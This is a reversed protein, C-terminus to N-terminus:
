YEIVEVRQGLQLLRVGIGSGYPVLVTDFRYGRAQADQFFIKARGGSAHRIEGASIRKETYSEDTYQMIDYMISVAKPYSSVFVGIEAGGELDSVIGEFIYRNLTM